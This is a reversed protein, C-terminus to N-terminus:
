PEEEHVYGPHQEAWDRVFTSKGISHSGSIATRM